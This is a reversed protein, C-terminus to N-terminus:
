NMLNQDLDGDFIVQARYFKLVIFLIISAALASNLIFIPNKWIPQRKTSQGVRCIREKRDGFYNSM